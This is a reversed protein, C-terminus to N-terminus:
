VRRKELLAFYIIKKHGLIYQSLPNEMLTKILENGVEECRTSYYVKRSPGVFTTPSIKTLYVTSV